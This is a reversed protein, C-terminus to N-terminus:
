NKCTYRYHSSNTIKQKMKELNHKGYLKTFDEEWKTRFSRLTPAMNEVCKNKYTFKEGNNGVFNLMSMLYSTNDMLERVAEDKDLTQCDQGNLNCIAPCIEGLAVKLLWNCYDSPRVPICGEIVNNEDNRCITAKYFLSALFSGVSECVMDRTYTAGAVHCTCCLASSSMHHTQPSYGMQLLRRCEPARQCKPISCLKPVIPCTINKIYNQIKEATDLGAQMFLPVPELARRGDRSSVRDLNGM